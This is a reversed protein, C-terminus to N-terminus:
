NNESSEESIINESDRYRIDFFIIRTKHNDGIRVMDETYNEEFFTVVSDVDVFDYNGEIVITPESGVIEEVTSIVHGDTMFERVSRLFDSKNM